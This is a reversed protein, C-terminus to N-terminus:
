IRMPPRVRLSTTAPTVGLPASISSPKGTSLWHPRNVTSVCFLWSTNPHPPQFAGRQGFEIYSQQDLGGDGGPVEGLGGSVFGHAGPALSRSISVSCWGAIPPMPIGSALALFIFIGSCSDNRRSRWPDSGAKPGVAWAAHACRPFQREM